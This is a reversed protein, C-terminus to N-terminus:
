TIREDWVLISYTKESCRSGVAAVNRRAELESMRKRVEVITALGKM